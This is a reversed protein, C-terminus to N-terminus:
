QEFKWGRDKAETGESLVEVIVQPNVLTEGPQELRPPGCAVVIDPYTYLGSRGVKV